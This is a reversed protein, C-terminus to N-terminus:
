GKRFKDWESKTLEWTEAEVISPDVFKAPRNGILKAGTKEKIRRSRVNSIANSFILKEFGLENFAFDNVATAVETMLGQGWFKRGLWFGRNEPNAKRWLDVCGILETPNSKLFLGWKGQQPWVVEELYDQVGNAPYPWPVVSALQRIVEYDVFHKTYDAVHEQQPPRLYLRPTELEPVIAM